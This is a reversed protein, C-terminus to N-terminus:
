FGHEGLVHLYTLDLVLTKNYDTSSHDKMPLEKYTRRIDNPEVRCM